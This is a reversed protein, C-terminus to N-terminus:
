QTKAALEREAGVFGWTVWIGPRVVRQFYERAKTLNHNYLHWNGIGYAVTEFRLGLEIDKSDAPPEQPVADAEKMRGQFFRVLNLYLQVHADDTNIEPTIRTLVTAAKDPENTRRLSAYEWNTADIRGKDDPALELARDFAQAAQAFEGLFYHALGLHYYVGMNKPALTAARNM